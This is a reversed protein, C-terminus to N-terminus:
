SEWVYYLDTDHNIDKEGPRKEDERYVGLIQIGQNNQRILVYYTM